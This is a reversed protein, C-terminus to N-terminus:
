YGNNKYYRFKNKQKLYALNKSLENIKKNLKISISENLKDVNIDLLKSAYNLDNDITLPDYLEIKNILSVLKRAITLKDYDKRFELISDLIYKIPSRYNILVNKAQIKDNLFLENIDKLNFDYKGYVNINFDDKIDKLFNVFANFAAKDNDLCFNITEINNSKLLNIHKDSFNLGMLSVVNNFGLAKLSILDFFGEVIWINELDSDKINSFNYLISEKNFFDSSKSNLYKINENEDLTRGSFGVINNNQDKIPFIIRNKFFDIYDGKSNLAILNAELLQIPTWIQSKDRDSGMINNENTMISFLENNKPAFGIELEKIIELSLGRNQLYELVYKNEENFLMRHYIFTAQKNIEYYEHFADNQDEKFNIDLDFESAILKMAEKFSINKYKMVFGISNGKTGCAFCNFCQKKDSISLSANKDNHFPCIGIYSNGKKSLKIFKEVVSLIDTNELIFKSPLNNSMYEGVLNKDLLLNAVHGLHDVFQLDDPWM